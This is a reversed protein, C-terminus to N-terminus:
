ILSVPTGLNQGLKDTKRASEAFMILIIGSQLAQNNAGFISPRMMVKLRHRGFRDTSSEASHRGIDSFFTSKATLLRWQPLLFAGSYNPEAVVLLQTAFNRGHELWKLCGTLIGAM